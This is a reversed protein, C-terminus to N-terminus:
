STPFWKQRKGLSPQLSVPKNELISLSDSNWVVSKKTQPSNVNNYVIILAVTYIIGIQLFYITNLVTEQPLSIDM